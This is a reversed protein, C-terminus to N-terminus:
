KTKLFWGTFQGDIIMGALMRAEDFHTDLGILGDAEAHLEKRRWSAIDRDLLPKESLEWLRDCLRTVFRDLVRSRDLAHKAFAGGM